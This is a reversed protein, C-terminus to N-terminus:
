CHWSIWVVQSITQFSCFCCKTRITKLQTNEKVDASVSDGNRVTARHLNPVMCFFKVLDM